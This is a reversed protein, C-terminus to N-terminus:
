IKLSIMIMFDALIKFCSRRFIGRLDKVGAHIERKFTKLISKQHNFKLGLMKLMKKTTLLSVFGGFIQLKRFFEVSFDDRRPQICLVYKKKVCGCNIFVITENQM